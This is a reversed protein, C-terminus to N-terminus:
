MTLAVSFNEFVARKIAHTGDYPCLGYKSRLANCQNRKLYALTKLVSSESQSIKYRGWEEIGNGGLTGLPLYLCTYSAAHNPM